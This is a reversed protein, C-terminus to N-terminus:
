HWGQLRRVSLCVVYNVTLWCRTPRRGDPEAGELVPAHVKEIMGCSTRRSDRHNLVRFYEPSLSARVGVLLLCTKVERKITEIEKSADGKAYVKKKCFVRRTVTFRGSMLSDERSYLRVEVEIEKLAL